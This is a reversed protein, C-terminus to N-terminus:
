FFGESFRFGAVAAREGCLAPSFQMVTVFGQNRICVKGWLVYLKLNFFLSATQGFYRLGSASIIPTANHGRAM